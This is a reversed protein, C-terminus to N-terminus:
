PIIIYLEHFGFIVTFDCFEKETVGPNAHNGKLDRDQWIILMAFNHEAIPLM